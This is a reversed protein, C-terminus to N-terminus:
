LGKGQTARNLDDLASQFDYSTISREFRVFDERAFLSGLIPGASGLFDVAAADSDALFKAMLDVASKLQEPDVAPAPATLPTPATVQLLPKVAATLGALITALKVRLDEVQSIEARLRITKELEGSVAHVGSAGINGAVGKVTHALREATGFDGKALCEEIRQAADSQGDVFQRLLNLYLKKNGAVRRLGDATNLGEVDPIGATEVGNQTSAPPATQSPGGRYYRGLTEFLATPDIPKAVHDNMGSALCRQREEVTTHATMAIIPLQAFRPDSRIKATAQYGDMEPMQVDML